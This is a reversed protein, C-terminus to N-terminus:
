MKSLVLIKKKFECIKKKVEINEDVNRQNEETLELVKTELAAIAHLQKKIVVKLDEENTEAFGCKENVVQSITSVQNEGEFNQDICQNGTLYVNRLQNLGNFLRGNM